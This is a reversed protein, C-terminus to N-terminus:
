NQIKGIVGASVIVAKTAWAAVMKNQSNLFEVGRVENTTQDILLKTVLAKTSIKLNPKDTIRLTHSTTWRTGKESITAKVKYFNNQLNIVGASKLIDNSVTTFIDETM